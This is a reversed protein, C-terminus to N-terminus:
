EPPQSAMSGAHAGLRWRGTNRQRGPAVGRTRLRDVDQVSPAVRSETEPPSGPRWGICSSRLGRRRKPATLWRRDTASKQVGGGNVWPSVTALQPRHSVSNRQRVVNWSHKEAERGAWVEGEAIETEPFFHQVVRATPYCQGYAPNDPRVVGGYSTASDWSAEIAERIELLGFKSVHATHCTCAGSARDSSLLCDRAFSRGSLRVAVV